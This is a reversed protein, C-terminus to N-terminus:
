RFISAGDSRYGSDGKTDAFQVTIWTGKVVFSGALAGKLYLEYHTADVRRVTYPGDRYRSHFVATGVTRPDSDPKSENFRVCGIGTKREFDSVGGACYLPALKDNNACATLALAVVLALRMPNAYLTAEVDDRV